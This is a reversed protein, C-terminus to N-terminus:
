YGIGNTDGLFKQSDLFSNLNEKGKKFKSIFNKLELLEKSLKLNEDNAKKLQDELSNSSKLDNTLKVNSEVLKSFDNKLSESEKSLNSLKHKFFSRRISCAKVNLCSNEWLLARIMIM